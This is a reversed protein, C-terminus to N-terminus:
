MEEPVSEAPNLGRKRRRRVVASFGGGLALVLLGGVLSAGFQSNVFQAVEGVHLVFLVILVAAAVAALSVLIGAQLRAVRRQTMALKAQLEAVAGAPERGAPASHEHEGVVLFDSQHHANKLDQNVGTHASAGHTSMFELQLRAIDLGEPIRLTYPGVNCFIVQLHGNFNYDVHTTTSMLGLSLLRGRPFIIGTVNNPLQLKEETVISVIEGPGVVFNSNEMARRRERPERLCFWAVPGAHLEITTQRIVPPATGERTVAGTAVVRALDAESLVGKLNRVPTERNNTAM